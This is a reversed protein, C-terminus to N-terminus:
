KKNAKTKNLRKTTYKALKNATNRYITIKPLFIKLTVYPVTFNVHICEM